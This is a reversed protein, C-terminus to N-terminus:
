SFVKSHDFHSKEHRVGLVIVAICNSILKLCIHKGWDGLLLFKM